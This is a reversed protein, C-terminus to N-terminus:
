FSGWTLTSNTLEEKTAYTEEINNGSADNTANTANAVAGTVSAGAITANTLAGSIKSATIGTPIDSDTLARLTTVLQPTKASLDLTGTVGGTVAISPRGSIGTWAVADATGATAPKGISIVQAEGGSPTVTFSGNSGSSFTYTTNTTTVNIDASGDFEQGNITLKHNVKDATGANGTIDTITVNGTLPQGNVQITNNVKGALAATLGTIKSQEIAKISGTAVIAGGSTLDANFALETNEAAISITTPKGGVNAWNVSGAAPAGPVWDTGNFVLSQGNTPETTTLDVDSLDDLAITVAGSLAKGAITVAQLTDIDSEVTDVRGELASVSASTALSDTAVGSDVIAGEAGFEMINGATGTVKDVKGSISTQLTSLSVGSDQVKQGGAGTVINGSALAADSIVAGDINTQAVTWDADDFADSYDTVAILLDGIECDVGAYTGAEIVRYTWGTKYDTLAEFDTVTAGSDAGGVTGKFLMADNAGLISDAYDKASQLTTADQADVYTKATASSAGTPSTPVTVDGTFAAGSLQAYRGDATTQDLMTGKTVTITRGEASVGTIVNGASDNGEVTVDTEVSPFEISVNEVATINGHTDVTIKPVQTASGFVGGSIEAPLHAIQAWSAGDASYYLDRVAGTELVFLSNPPNYGDPLAAGHQIPRTYETEGVFLRQTDTIFYVTNLDKSVIKDFAAQLGAKFQVLSEPTPM